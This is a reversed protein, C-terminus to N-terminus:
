EFSPKLWATAESVEDVDPHHYFAIATRATAADRHNLKMAAVKASFRQTVLHGLRHRLAHARITKVGAEASVREFARSVSRSGLSRVRCDGSGRVAMPKMTTLLHTVMSSPRVSLWRQLAFATVETFELHVLGTKGTSMVTYVCRHDPRRLAEEVMNKQLAVIEGLRSGSEAALLVVFGDRIQCPEHARVQGLAAEV